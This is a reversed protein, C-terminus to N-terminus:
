VIINLIKGPKYVVKVIKKDELANAVSIIEKSKLVAEDEATEATVELTGRMKGNVQIGM